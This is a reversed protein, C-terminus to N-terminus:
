TTKIEHFPFLLVTASSSFSISIEIPLVRFNSFQLFPLLTQTQTEWLIAFFILAPNSWFLFIQRTSVIESLFLVSFHVRKIVALSLMGWFHEEFSVQTRPVKLPPQVSLSSALSSKVNSSRAPDFVQENFVTQVHPLNTEKDERASEKVPADYKFRILPQKRPNM